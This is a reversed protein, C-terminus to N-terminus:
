QVRSVPIQKSNSAITKVGPSHVAEPDLGSASSRSKKYFHPPDSDPTSCGNAKFLTNEEIEVTVDYLPWPEHQIDAYRVFRNPAEIYYRYRETLFHTLM